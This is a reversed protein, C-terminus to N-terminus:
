TKERLFTHTCNATRYAAPPMSCDPEEKVIGTVDIKTLIGFDQRQLAATVGAMAEGFSM